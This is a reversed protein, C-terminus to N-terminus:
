RRGDAGLKEFLRQWSAFEESTLNYRRCAVDLSILGSEVAAVIEVKRRQTWRPISPPPLLVVKTLQTKAVEPSDWIGVRQGDIYGAFEGLSSAAVPRVRLRLDGFEAIWTQSNQPAQEWKIRAIM